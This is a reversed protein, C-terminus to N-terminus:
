AVLAVTWSAERFFLIPPNQFKLGGSDISKKEANKLKELSSDLEEPHRRMPPM